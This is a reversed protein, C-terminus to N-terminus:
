EVPEFASEWSELLTLFGLQALMGTIRWPDEDHASFARLMEDLRGTWEEGREHLIPWIDMKLQDAESRIISQNSTLDRIDSM